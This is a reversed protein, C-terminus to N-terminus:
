YIYMLLYESHCGHTSIVYTRIVICSASVIVYIGHMESVFGRWFESCQQSETSSFSALLLVLPAFLRRSRRSCM